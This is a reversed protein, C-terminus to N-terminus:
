GAQFGDARLASFWSFGDSRCFSFQQLILDRWSFANDGLTFVPATLRTMWSIAGLLALRLALALALGVRRGVIQQAPPL